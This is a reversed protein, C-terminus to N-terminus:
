FFAAPFSQSITAAQLKPNPISQEQALKMNITAAAPAPAQAPPSRFLLPTKPFSLRERENIQAPIKFDQLRQIKNETQNTM